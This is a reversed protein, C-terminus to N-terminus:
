KSGSAMPTLQAYRSAAPRRVNDPLDFTVRRNTFDIAIRDFLRLADMGLLLTPQEALGLVAFAPSDAYAVPLDQIDVSSITIRPIVDVDVILRAGTVSRLESQVPGGVRRGFSRRVLRQMALNGISSQAGTDIVIDIRHGNVTANSLIMRGARRRAVVTIADRDFDPERRRSRSPQSPRIDFRHLIFDIVLKHRELSAIGLLGPGGIDSQDFTPVTSGDLMLDQFTLSEVHFMDAMVANALGVVRAQGASRLGLRAALERSLVTREAGTDVIFDFPGQGAISVQLTMRDSRDLMIPTTLAPESAPSEIAPQAYDAPPEITSTQAFALSTACAAGLGAVISRWHYVAKVM